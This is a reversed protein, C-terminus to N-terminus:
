RRSRGADGRVAQTVPERIATPLIDIPAGKSDLYHKLKWSKLVRAATRLVDGHGHRDRRRHRAGGDRRRAAGGIACGGARGRRRPTSTRSSEQSMRDTDRRPDAGGDHGGAPPKTRPKVVFTQYAMLVLFSLFVAFLVRREMFPASQLASRDACPRLGAPRCRISAPAAGRIVGCCAGCRWGAAVDRATSSSRRSRTPRAPRRSGVPAASSRRSCFRIAAFSRSLALTTRLSAAIAVPGVPARDQRASVLAAYDRELTPSNPPSSSANPSLRRRRPRAAAQSAPVARQLTRKARNRVVAGGLKRTAAVGLRSTPLGTRLLFVTM